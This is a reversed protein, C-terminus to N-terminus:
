GLGASRSPTLAREGQGVVVTLLGIVLAGAIPASAMTAFLPGMAMIQDRYDVEALVRGMGIAAVALGLKSCCTYLGFAATGRIRATPSAARGALLSWLTMAVGGSGIGYLACAAAAWALSDPTLFFLLGAGTVVIALAARLMETLGMRQALRAWVFQSLLSGLTAASMMLSAAAVQRIAFAAIYPELRGFMSASVALTFAIALLAALSPVPKLRSSPRDKRWQGGRVKIDPRRRVFARLGVATIIALLGMVVCLLAFRHSQALASQGVMMPAFALALSLKAGGGAVYRASALRARGGDDQTAFTMLANQPNDYFPYALRFAVLSALAFGLRLGAPMQGTMAFVVLMLASIWAGTLQLRAAGTSDRVLRRLSWGVALDMLANLGLSLGLIVGTYAPALGAAETLFFAFLFESAHWILSKAGHAAGYILQFANHPAVRFRPIM